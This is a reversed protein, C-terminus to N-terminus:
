EWEIILQNPLENIQRQFEVLLSSLVMLSVMISPEDFDQNPLRTELSRGAAPGLKLSFM